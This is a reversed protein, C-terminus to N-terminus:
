SRKFAAGSRSKRNTRIPIACVLERLNPQLTKVFEARHRSWRGPYPLQIMEGRWNAQLSAQAVHGAIARLLVAIRAPHLDILGRTLLREGRVRARRRAEASFQDVPNPCLDILYCGSAQFRRLFNRDDIRADVSQFAERM